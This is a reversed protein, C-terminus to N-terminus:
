PPHYYSIWPRDSKWEQGRIDRGTSYTTCIRPHFRKTGALPLNVTGTGAKLRQVPWQYWATSMSVGSIILAYEETLIKTGNNRAKERPAM